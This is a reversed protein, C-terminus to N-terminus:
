MIDLITRNIYELCKTLTKDINKTFSKFSTNSDM